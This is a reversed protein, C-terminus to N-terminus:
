SVTVSKALNRPKDIDRGLALAAHYAILQYAVAAAFIQEVAGPAGVSCTRIRRSARRAGEDDTILFVSAGRALVEELSSLTKAFLPDNSFASAVVPFGEEIMAIPGHKLEGAACGEAHIYSIEKLKLAGEFAIPALPGRGLFYASKAQCIDQAFRSLTDEQDIASTVADSVGALGLDTAEGKMNAVFSALAFLQMTFAKTSAVGIEPGAMLPVVAHAERAMTSHTANVFAVTLIGLSKYRRLAALTDATEGSQSIFIAVDDSGFVAPAYEAESAITVLARRNLHEAIWHAAVAGAYSSTGCAIIHYTTNARPRPLGFLAEAYASRQLFAKQHAKRLLMPQEHIERYMHYGDDECDLMNQDGRDLAVWVEHGTCHLGHPTLAGVSGDQLYLVETFEPGFALVDSALALAGSESRGLCLPSGQRAFHVVGPDRGCIMAVAYAGELQEKLASMVNHMPVGM